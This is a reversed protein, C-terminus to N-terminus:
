VSFCKYESLMCKRCLKVGTIVIDPKYKQPIIILREVCPLTNPHSINLFVGGMFEIIM